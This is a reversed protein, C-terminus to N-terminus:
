LLFCSQAKNFASFTFTGEDFFFITLIITVGFFFVGFFFVGFFFVGFFFVGFFFVGFSLL